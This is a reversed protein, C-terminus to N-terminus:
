KERIRQRWWAQAHWQSVEDALPDHLTRSEFQADLHAVTDALALRAPPPLARMAQDLIDRAECPDCCPCDASPPYLWRGPRSLFRQYSALADATANPWLYHSEMRLVAAM